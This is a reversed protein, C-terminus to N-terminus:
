VGCCGYLSVHGDATMKLTFHQGHCSAPQFDLRYINRNGVRETVVAATAKEWDIPAETSAAGSANRPTSRFDDLQVLGNGYPDKLENGHRKIFAIFEQASAPKEQFAYRMEPGCNPSAGKPPEGFPDDAHAAMSVLLSLGVILHWTPNKRAALVPCKPSAM